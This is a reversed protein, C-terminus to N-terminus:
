SFFDKNGNNTKVFPHLNRSLHLRKIFPTMHKKNRECIEAKKSAEAGALLSLGKEDKPM